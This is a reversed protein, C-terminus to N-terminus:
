LAFPICTPAYLLRCSKCFQQRVRFVIYIIIAVPSERRRHLDVPLQTTMLSGHDSGPAAPGGVTAYPLPSYKHHESSSLLDPLEYLTRKTLQYVPDSM